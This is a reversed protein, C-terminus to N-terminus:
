LLKSGFTFNQVLGALSVLIKKVIMTEKVVKRAAQETMVLTIARGGKLGIGEGVKVM